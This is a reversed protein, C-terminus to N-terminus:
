NDILLADHIKEALKENCPILNQLPYMFYVLVTSSTQQTTEKRRQNGKILTKNTSANPSFLTWARVYM